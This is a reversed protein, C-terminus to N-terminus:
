CGPLRIAHEKLVVELAAIDGLVWLDSILEDRFRFLAAGQWSVLKGTPQYGRFIGVHRGSFLMKAFAQEGETVCESIDCRYHSLAERISRAYDTFADRGRMETGLSSRFSFDPALLAKAAQLDGANWIREYFTLVPSPISM